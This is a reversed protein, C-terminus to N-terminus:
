EHHRTLWDSLVTKATAPSATEVGTSTRHLWWGYATQPSSWLDLHEVPPDAYFSETGGGLLASSWYTFHDHSIRYIPFNGALPVGWGDLAILAKVQGGAQEWMWAAAIAGVVGASFCIFVIPLKVHHQGFSGSSPPSFSPVQTVSCLYNFIDIGSYAPYDQTPFILLNGSQCRSRWDGFLQSVFSETLKPDHIGPCIVVAM